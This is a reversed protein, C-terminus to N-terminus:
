NDWGMAKWEAIESTNRLCSYIQMWEKFNQIEIIDIFSL